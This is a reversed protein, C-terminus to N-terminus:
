AHAAHNSGSHRTFHPKQTSLFRLAADLQAMPTQNFQGEYSLRSRNLKANSEVGYQQRVNTEKEEYM